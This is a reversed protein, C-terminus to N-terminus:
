NFPNSLGRVYLCQDSPIVMSLRNENGFEDSLGRILAVPVSEAAEGMVLQAASAAQDAVARITVKLENGFLDRQGRSDIVTSFGVASIAIGTTGLRGPSIRSDSLIVGLSKIPIGTRRDMSNQVLTRRLKNATAQPDKPYFIAYGSPVNSRDIGANPALIGKSISLAFGPIGGLIKESERVVAEALAPDIELRKALRFGQPTRRLSKLKVYRGESMAAFKSSVVLIDKDRLSIRHNRLAVAVTQALNFRGFRKKIRLPIIQIRKNGNLTSAL